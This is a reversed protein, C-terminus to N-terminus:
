DPDPDLDADFHCAPDLDPDVDAHPDANSTPVIHTAANPVPVGVLKSGGSGAFLCIRIAIPLGQFFHGIVKLDYFLASDEQTVFSIAKGSKGARGTRGIRCFAWL